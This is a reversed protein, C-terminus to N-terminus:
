ESRFLKPIKGFPITRTLLRYVADIYQGAPNTKETEWKKITDLSCGLEEALESQTMNLHERRLRAFTKHDFKYRKKM